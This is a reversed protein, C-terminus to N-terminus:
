LEFQNVHESTVLQPLGSKKNQIKTTNARTKTPSLQMRDLEAQNMLWYDNGDMMESVGISKANTIHYTIRCEVVLLNVAVMQTQGQKFSM